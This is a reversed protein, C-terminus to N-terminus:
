GRSLIHKEHHRTHAAHFELWEDVSFAGLIPHDMVKARGFRERARRAAADLRNLDRQAADMAAVLDLTGSPIVGKPAQRGEPFYGLKLLAFSQLRQMLTAPKAMVADNEVCREFGKATGLYARQLHEIVEVASWKDPDRRVAAKPGCDKTAHQLIALCQRLQASDM